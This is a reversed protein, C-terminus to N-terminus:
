RTSARRYIWVRGPPLNLTVWKSKDVTFRGPIAEQPPTLSYSLQTVNGGPTLRDLADEIYRIRTTEPLILIPVGSLVASFKTARFAGLTQDLKLGDGQILNISPFRERLLRCFGEDSEVAVIREPPIGARLLAETVAGSGPGIELTWATPDPHALEVMLDTLARGTPVVAGVKLPKAAWRKFFRLDDEIREALSPSHKAM